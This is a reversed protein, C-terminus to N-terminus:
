CRFLQQALAHDIKDAGIRRGSSWPRQGHGGNMKGMWKMYARMEEPTTQSKPMCYVAYGNDEARPHGSWLVGIIYHAAHEDSAVISFNPTKSHLFRELLGLSALMLKCQEDERCVVAMNLNESLVQFLTKSGTRLVRIPNVPTHPRNQQLRRTSM